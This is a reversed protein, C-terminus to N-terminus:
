GALHLSPRDQLPITKALGGRGFRDKGVRIHIAEPARELELRLAVPLPAPHARRADTLMLITSGGEAALLALKRVLVERSRDNRQSPRANKQSQRIIGAADGDIVIVAFAHSRAVKVAIHGVESQPPRVVFLRHLEVGAMVAGPAYLTGASDIWACWARPDKRQAACIAALAVMTGGGLSLPATLEVVGHPLGGDPLFADFETWSLALAHGESPHPSRFVLASLQQRVTDLPSPLAM